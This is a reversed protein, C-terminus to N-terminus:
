KNMNELLWVTCISFNNQEPGFVKFYIIKINSKSVFGKFLTWYNGTTCCIIAGKKMSCCSYNEMYSIQVQFVNRIPTGWM